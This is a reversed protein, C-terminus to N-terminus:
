PRDGLQKLSHKHGFLRIEESTASFHLLVESDMTADKSQEVALHPKDHYESSFHRQCQSRLSTQRIHALRAKAQSM